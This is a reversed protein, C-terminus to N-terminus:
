STTVTSIADSSTWEETRTSVPPSADGGIALTGGTSGVNGYNMDQTASSLNAVETWATGNWLETNATRSPGGGFALASSNSTGGAAGAVRPTNIEAVESWSTGNWSESLVAPGPTGGSGIASTQSGSGSMKGRATNMNNVETWISGNWLETNATTEGGFTIAATQTGCASNGGNPTNTGNAATWSTGGWAEVATADGPNGRIALGASTTGAGPREARYTSMDNKETWSTGDYEETTIRGPASGPPYYGGFEIAATSTGFSGVAANANNMNGGSAWVGGVAYREYGKLASSTSNFWMLGEQLQSVPTPPFTWEETVAVETSTYGGAIFASTGTGAGAAEHRATGIDAVETWASGNWQETLASNPPGGAVVLGDTLTGAGATRQRNNNLESVETWNTGDWTEVATTTGPSDTGSAAMAATSTGFCGMNSKKTNMDNVETWASGNYLETYAGQPIPNGGFAVAATSSSGAGGLQKRAGNMEAVETWNTGDYSDAESSEATNAANTGGFILGSTQPANSASALAFSGTPMDNVESWATGNYEEVNTTTPPPKNGGAYVGATLTGFATGQRKATNLNGGSSWSGVYDIPDAELFQINTGKIDKLKAM